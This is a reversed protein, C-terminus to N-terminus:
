NPRYTLQMNFLHALLLMCGGIPTLFIKLPLMALWLKSGANCVAQYWGNAETASEYNAPSDATAQLEMAVPSPPSTTVAISEAENAGCCVDPIAFAAIALLTLGVVATAVVTKDRYKTWNPLISWAVVIGAIIAAIQHIRPDDLWSAATISPVVAVLGPMALCHAACALSCAIGVVDSRQRNAGRSGPHKAPNSTCM